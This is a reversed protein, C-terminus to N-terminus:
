RDATAAVAPTVLGDQLTPSQDAIVTFVLVAGAAFGLAFFRTFDTKFLRM